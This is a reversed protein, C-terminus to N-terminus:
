ARIIKKFGWKIAWFACYIVSFILLYGDFLGFIFDGEIIVAIIALVFAVKNAWFLTMIFASAFLASLVESRLIDVGILDLHGLFLPISFLAIIQPIFLTKPPIQSPTQSPNQPIQSPNQTPNQPNQPLNQAPNQPNQPLNQTPNQPIQSPNQTPNQPIQSPNQTPNQPIQPNQPNQPNPFSHLIERLIYGACLLACFASTEGFLSYFLTIISYHEWLVFIFPTSIFAVFCPLAIYKTRNKLSKTFFFFTAIFLLFISFKASDLKTSDTSDLPSELASDLTSEASDAMKTSEVSDLKASDLTSEVSDVMKASDLVSDASDLKASDLASELASDVMKASDVSDVVSEVSETSEVNKAGNKIIKKEIELLAIKQLKIAKRNHTYGVFLASEDITASPYSVENPYSEDVLDVNQLFVFDGNELYYLGLSRRSNRYKDVKGDNYLLLIRMAGKANQYNLLLYSDDWAKLNTTNPVEWEAGGRKCKQLFGINKHAKHNRFFALCESENLAIITPQLQNKLHNLRLTHSFNGNDDFFAVLPYKQALEHYLPLMFGGNELMLPPTRILHSFNGLLGLRLEKKFNIHKLDESLELHYIKSTAWGGLSVGVVFFQLKGNADKFILPNGLKKIFKNTLKSLTPATLIAQPPTSHLTRKDVFHALIKVDSAGERSGAFYAVLLKEGLDAISSSHASPLPNPLITRITDIANQSPASDAKTLPIKLAFKSEIFHNQLLLLFAFIIFFGIIKKVFAM